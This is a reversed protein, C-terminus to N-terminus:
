AVQVLHVFTKGWSRIAHDTQGFLCPSVNLLTSSAKLQFALFQVQGYGNVIVEFGMLPLLGAAQSVGTKDVFYVKHAILKAKGQAFANSSAAPASKAIGRMVRSKLFRNGRM